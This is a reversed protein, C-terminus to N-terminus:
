KYLYSRSRPQENNRSRSFLVQFLQMTGSTFAAISGSLYLRFARVFSEDYTDQFTDSNDEFRQLWHKLTKAYHLRLNEIDLISFSFPEFVNMMQGISPPCAGPFIRTEIWANLLGPENRGITHLLGRGSKKLCQNIVSGLEPYNNVGIHELMGVSVFYDYEGRICRCDDEVYEVLENLGKEKVREQAFSIQESSINYARVKVGYEQAMFLALGGWGCGAEVVSKGQKLGLKRCIHHMKATQAEELTMCPNPFYACTYQMAEKDLWRAYFDNGIDYHHHINRRSGALTNAHRKKQKLWKVIRTKCNHSKESIAQYIHHLLVVLDGDIDLSNTCYLDGFYYEPDLLLFLLASRNRIKLKTVPKIGVPIIIENNWLMIVMPPNGTVSLVQRALWRDL